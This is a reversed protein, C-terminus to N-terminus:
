CACPSQVCSVHYLSNFQVTLLLDCKKESQPPPICKDPPLIFWIQPAPVPTEFVTSCCSADKLWTVEYGITVKLGDVHLSGPLSISALCHGQWLMERWLYLVSCNYCYNWCSKSNPTQGMWSFCSITLLAEKEKMQPLLTLHFLLYPLIRSRFSQQKLQAFISKKGYFVAEQAKIRACQSWLM